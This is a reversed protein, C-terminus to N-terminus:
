GFLLVENRSDLFMMNIAVSCMDSNNSGLAETFLGLAEYRNVEEMDIDSVEVLCIDNYIYKALESSEASILIGNGFKFYKMEM